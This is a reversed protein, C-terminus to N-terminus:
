KSKQNQIELMKRRKEIQYKLDQRSAHNLHSMYDTEYGDFVYVSTPFLQLVPADTNKDLYEIITAALEGMIPQLQKYENVMYQASPNPFRTATTWAEGTQQPVGNKKSVAMPTDQCLAFM